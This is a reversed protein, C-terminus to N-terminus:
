RILVWDNVKESHKVAVLAIDLDKWDEKVYDLSKDKATTQITPGYHVKEKKFDFSLYSNQHIIEKSNIKIERDARYVAGDILDELKEVDKINM